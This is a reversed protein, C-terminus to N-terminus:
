EHNKPLGTNATLRTRADIHNIKGSNYDITISGMAHTQNYKVLADILIALKREGGGGEIEDKMLMHLEFMIPAYQQLQLELPTLKSM